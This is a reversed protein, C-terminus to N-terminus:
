LAPILGIPLRGHFQITRRLTLPIGGVYVEFERKGGKCGNWTVGTGTLQTALRRIRFKSILGHFHSMSIIYRNHTKSLTLNMKHNLRSYLLKLTCKGNNNWKFHFQIWITVNLTWLTLKKTLFLQNKNQNSSSSRSLQQTWSKRM